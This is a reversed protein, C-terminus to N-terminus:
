EDSKGEQKHLALVAEFVRKAPLMYRKDGIKFAIGGWGGLVSYIEIPIETNNITAAGEGIMELLVLCGTIDDVPVTIEGLTESM